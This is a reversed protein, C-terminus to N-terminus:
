NKIIKKAHKVTKNEMKHVRDIEQVFKNAINNKKRIYM